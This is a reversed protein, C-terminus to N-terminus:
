HRVCRGKKQILSYSNQQPQYIPIYFVGTLSSILQPPHVLPKQQSSTSLKTFPTIRTNFTNNPKSSSSSSSPEFPTFNINNTNDDDTDFSIFDNNLKFKSNISM